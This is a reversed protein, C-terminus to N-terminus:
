VSIACSVGIEENRRQQKCSHCNVDCAFYVYKYITPWWCPGILTLQWTLDTHLHRGQHDHLIKILTRIEEKDIRIKVKGNAMITKLKDEKMFFMRSWYAM